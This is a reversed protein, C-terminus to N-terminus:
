EHGWQHWHKPLRGRAFLEIRHVHEKPPVYMRDILNRFYPPKKSHTDSRELEVVSDHLESSDPTCSGRTCLLLFEHRVSFYHGYNHKVKDWVCSTKYEFGWSMIVPFTEDLLPSTTWLFLVANDPALNRVPMACLKEISMSSYHHEAAGYGDIL